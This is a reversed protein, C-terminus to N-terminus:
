LYYAYEAGPVDDRFDKVKQLEDINDINNSSLYAVGKPPITRILNGSQDYYYLTHHYERTEFEQTLIDGTNM